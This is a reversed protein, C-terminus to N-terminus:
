GRTLLWLECGSLRFRGQPTRLELLAPWARARQYHAAAARLWDSLDPRQASSSDPALVPRRLDDNRLGLEELAAKLAPDGGREWQSQALAPNLRPLRSGPLTAFYVEPELLRLGAELLRQVRPPQRELAALRLSVSQLEGVAEAFVLRGGVVRAEHTPGAEQQVEVATSDPLDLWGQRAAGEGSWAVGKQRLAGALRLAALRRRGQPDRSELQQLRLREAARGRAAVRELEDDLRELALQGGLDAPPRRRAWAEGLREWFAEGTDARAERVDTDSWAPTESPEDPVPARLALTGRRALLEEFRRRQQKGLQNWVPGAQRLLEDVRAALSDSDARRLSDVHLASDLADMLAPMERDLRASVQRAAPDPEARQLWLALAVLLALVALLALVRRWPFAGLLRRSWRSGGAAAANEGRTFGAGEELVIERGDDPAQEGALPHRRDGTPEEVRELRLTLGLQEFDRRVAVADSLAHERLILFPPHRLERRVVGEPLGTVRALRAIVRPDRSEDLLYLNYASV